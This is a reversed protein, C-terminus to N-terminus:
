GNATTARLMWATKEHVQLRGTCLDESAVDGAEDAAELAARLGRIVREHGKLLDRVMDAAGIPDESEESVSLADAPILSGLARVREAIEDLADWLERYQTEFMAHLAAFQPGIVNWHYRHTRQYLAHTDTLVGILAEAVANRANDDLGTRQTM